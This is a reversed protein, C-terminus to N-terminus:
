RCQSCHPLSGLMGNEVKGSILLASVIFWLDTNVLLHIPALIADSKCLLAFKVPLAGAISGLPIVTNNERDKSKM